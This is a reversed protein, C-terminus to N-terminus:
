VAVSYPILPPIFGATHLAGRILVAEDIYGYLSGEGGDSSSGITFANGTNQIFGSNSVTAELNGDMFLYFDSGLRDVEVHHLGNKLISTTGVIFPDQWGGGIHCALRIKNSPNIDFTWGAAATSPRRSILSHWRGDDLTYVWCSLCFDYTGLDFDVSSGFTVYNGASPSYFSATGFKKIGTKTVPSGNITAIHGCEDIFVTGNDAGDFHSLFKAAVPITPITRFFSPFPSIISM